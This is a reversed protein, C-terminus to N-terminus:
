LITFLSCSRVMIVSPSFNIVCLMLLKYRSLESSYLIRLLAYLM